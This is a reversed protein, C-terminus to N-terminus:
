QAQLSTKLQKIAKIKGLFSEWLTFGAHLAFICINKGFSIEHRSAAFVM